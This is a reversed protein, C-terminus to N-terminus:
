RGGARAANSRAKRRAEAWQLFFDWSREDWYREGTPIARMPAALTPISGRDALARVNQSTCDLVRAAESLRHYTAM